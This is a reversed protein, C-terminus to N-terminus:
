MLHVITWLFPRLTVKTTLPTYKGITGPEQGFDQTKYICHAFLPRYQGIGAGADLVYSGEPIAAAQAAVWRKRESLNFNYNSLSNM